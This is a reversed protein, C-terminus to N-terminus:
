IQHYEIANLKNRSATDITVVRGKYVDMPPVWARFDISKSFKLLKKFSFPVMSKNERLTVEKGIVHRDDTTQRRDTACLMVLSECFLHGILKCMRIYQCALHAQM